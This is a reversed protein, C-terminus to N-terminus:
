LKHWAIRGYTCTHLTIYNYDWCSAKFACYNNHLNYQNTQRKVLCNEGQRPDLYLMVSRRCIVFWLKWPSHMNTHVQILIDSHQTTLMQVHAHENTNYNFRIECTERIYENRRRTWWPHNPRLTLLDPAVPGSLVDHVEPINQVEAHQRYKHRGECRPEHREELRGFCLLIHVQMYWVFVEAIGRQRIFNGVKGKTLM